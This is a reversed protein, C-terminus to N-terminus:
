VELTCKWNGIGPIRGGGETQSRLEGGGVAAILMECSRLVRVEWRLVIIEWLVWGGLNAVGLRWRDVNYYKMTNLEIGAVENYVWRWGFIVEIFCCHMCWARRNFTKNM